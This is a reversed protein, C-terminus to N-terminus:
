ETKTSIVEEYADGIVAILFNLFVITNIFVLIFWFGWLTCQLSFSKEKFQDVDFDGTSTRFVFIFYGIPGISRYPNEEGLSTFDLGLAFLIIAFVVILMIFLALFPMISVVVRVLMRSIFVVNDNLRFLSICKIAGFFLLFAIM